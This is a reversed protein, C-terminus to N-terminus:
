SIFNAKRKGLNEYSRFLRDYIGFDANYNVCGTVTIKLLKTLANLPNESDAKLILSSKIFLM